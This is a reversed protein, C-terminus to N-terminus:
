KITLYSTILKFELISICLDKNRLSIDGYFNANLNQYLFVYIKLVIDGNELVEANLNQYLFVYISFQYLYKVQIKYCKFELISICLNFGKEKAVM